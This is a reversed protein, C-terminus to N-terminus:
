DDVEVEREVPRHLAARPFVRADASDDANQPEADLQSTAATPCWLAATCLAEVGRRSLIAATELATTRAYMRFEHLTQDRERGSGAM